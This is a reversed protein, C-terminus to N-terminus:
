EDDGGVLEIRILNKFTGSELRIREALDGLKAVAAILGSIRADQQRSRSIAAANAEDAERWMQTVEAEALGAPLPAPPAKIWESLSWESLSHFGPHPAPVGASPVPEAGPHLDPPLPLPNKQRSKM